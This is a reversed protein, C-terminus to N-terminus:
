NSPHAELWKRAREQTALLVTKTLHSAAQDRYITGSDDGQSDYATAIDFLFYAEAYDQPVGEGKLYNM